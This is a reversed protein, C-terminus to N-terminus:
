RNQDEQRPARGAAARIADNITQNTASQEPTLRGRGAGARIAANMAAHGADDDRPPDGDQRQDETM